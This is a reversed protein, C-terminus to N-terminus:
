ILYMFEALSDIIYIYPYGRRAGGRSKLMGRNLLCHVHVCYKCWSSGAGAGVCQLVWLGEDGRGGEGGGWGGCGLWKVWV